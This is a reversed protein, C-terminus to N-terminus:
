VIINECPNKPCDRLTWIKKNEYPNKPYGSSDLKKNKYPKEPMGSFNFKKNLTKALKTNMYLIKTQMKRPNRPVAM